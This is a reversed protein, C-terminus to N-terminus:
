YHCCHCSQEERNICTQTPHQGSSRHQCYVNQDAGTPSTNTLFNNAADKIGSNQVLDLNYTGDIPSPVTVFYQDGSGSVATISNSPSSSSLAFDSSDVGTVAESFTVEYILTQSDTTAATPNSREISALRPLTNDVVATSVTYTQDAGTPSTNALLNNAADKIGSNQVLDLNYTGDIPSPVTAFYQDGSGSVATVPNTIPTSSGHNITLTWSNFTGDDASPYDDNIRLTWDGSVETGTFSPTYTQDINVASGGSRNHLTKTTGDPAVLDVKLDSIYTHTINVAVSVSTANGSDPVTITDTIDQSGSIELSPSSTQIFQDTGTGTVPVM